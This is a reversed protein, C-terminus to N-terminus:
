KDTNRAVDYSASCAERWCLPVLSGSPTRETPTVFNARRDSESSMPAANAAVEDM